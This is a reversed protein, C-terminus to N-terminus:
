ATPEAGRLASVLKSIRASAGEQLLASEEAARARRAFLAEALLLAVTASQSANNRLGIQRIEYSEAESLRARIHTSMRM